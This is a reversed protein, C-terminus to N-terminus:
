AIFSIITNTITVKLKLYFLCYIYWVISSIYRKTPTLTRRDRTRRVPSIM